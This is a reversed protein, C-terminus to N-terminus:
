HKTKITIKNGRISIPGTSWEILKGNHYKRSHITAYPGWAFPAKVPVWGGYSRTVPDWPISWDGLATVKNLGIASPAVGFGYSTDSVIIPKLSDTNKVAISVIPAVKIPAFPIIVQHVHKTAPVTPPYVSKGIKKIVANFGKIDNASYEVVRVTGDPERLSYAGKVVDGDRTEWQAKNDKTFPDNIAYNFAYRPYDFESILTKRSVVAGTVITAMATLCLTRSLRQKFGIM